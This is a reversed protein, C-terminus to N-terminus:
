PRLSAHATPLLTSMFAVALNLFTHAYCLSRVQAPPRKQSMKQGLRRQLAPNDVPKRAAFTDTLAQETM